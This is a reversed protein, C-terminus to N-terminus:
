KERRAAAQRRRAAHHPIQDHSLAPRLPRDARSLVAAPGQDDGDARRVDGALDPLFARDTGPGRLHRLCTQRDSLRAASQGLKRDTGRRTRIARPGSFDPAGRAARRRGRGAASAARSRDVEPFVISDFSSGAPSMSVECPAPSRLLRIMCCTRNVFTDVPRSLCTGEVCPGLGAELQAARAAPRDHRWRAATQGTPRAAVSVTKISLFVIALAIMLGGGMGGAVITTKGPGQPRTGTDPGDVINILSATRAAAQSARAEALDHEVIKLSEARSRAAAVLNSYEARVAALRTFRQQIEASQAEVARIRDANISLDVEVGKIAVSIEQHLQQRIADEAARAAKVLPHSESMAGLTQGTRLQADVLGDKLRGLAPQSKLLMSPAALLKNPDITAEGLLKLLEQNEAESAHYGRLEKDLEIATRRLDSEGSPSDNLIRLEALDSGVSQEVKSMAQTATALEAQALSASKTLEEVTGGAKAERLEGLRDQLNRCIATALEVARQRNGDQVKLYFVETKGFEAGKPPTIKVNNQLAELAAESPWGDAADTSPPGVDVFAKRLVTPSKALELVTEQSTKMEDSHVFRGPRAVRDGAEDRVVLAQAAEWTTPRVLAYGLALLTTALVPLIM